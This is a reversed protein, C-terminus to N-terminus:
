GFNISTALSETLSSVFEEVSSLLNGLTRLQEGDDFLDCRMTHCTGVTRGYRAARNIEKVNISEGFTETIAYALANNAVKLLIYGVGDLNEGTRYTECVFREVCEPSSRVKNEAWKFVGDTVRTWTGRGFISDVYGLEEEAELVILKTDKAPPPAVIVDLENDIKPSIAPIAVSLGNDSEKDDKDGTENVLDQDDSIKRFNRGNNWSYQGLDKADASLSVVVLALTIIHLDEFLKMNLKKRSHTKGFNRGPPKRREDGDCDTSGM